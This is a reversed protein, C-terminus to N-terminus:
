HDCLKKTSIQGLELIAETGVMRSIIENLNTLRQFSQVWSHKAM